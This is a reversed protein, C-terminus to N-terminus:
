RQVVCSTAGHRAIPVMVHAETPETTAVYAEVQKPCLM